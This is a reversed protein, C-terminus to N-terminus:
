PILKILALNLSGNFKSPSQYPITKNLAGHVAAARGNEGTARAEALTTVVDRYAASDTGSHKTEKGLM